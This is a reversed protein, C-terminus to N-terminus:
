SVINLSDGVKVWVSHFRHDLVFPQKVSASCLTSLLRTNCIYLHINPLTTLSVSGTGDEDENNNSAAGTTSSSQTSGASDMHSHQVALGRGQGGSVATGSFCWMCARDPYLCMPQWVPARVEMDGGECLEEDVRRVTCWWVYVWRVVHAISTTLQLNDLSLMLCKYRTTFYRLDLCCLM